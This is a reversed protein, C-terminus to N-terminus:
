PEVFLKRVDNTRLPLIKGDEDEPGFATKSLGGGPLHRSRSGLRSFM